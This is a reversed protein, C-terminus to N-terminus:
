DKLLIAIEDSVLSPYHARLYQTFDIPGLMRLPTQVDLVQGAFTARAHENGFQQESERGVSASHDASTTHPTRPNPQHEPYKSRAYCVDEPSRLKYNSHSTVNKGIDTSMTIMKRISDQDFDSIRPLVNHKKNFMGLDVNDLFFVQLFLHCGVLNTGPNSALM